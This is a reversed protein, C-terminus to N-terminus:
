HPKPSETPAVSLLTRRFQLWMLVSFCLLSIGMALLTPGLPPGEMRLQQYTYQHPERLVQIGFALAGAGAAFSLSILFRTIWALFNYNM